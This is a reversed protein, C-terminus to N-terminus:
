PNFYPVKATGGGPLTVTIYGAVQAPVAGHTGATASTSTGATQPFIAATSAAITQTLTGLKILINGLTSNLTSIDSGSPLDM